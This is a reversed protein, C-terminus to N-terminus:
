RITSVLHRCVIQALEPLTKVRGLALIPVKPDGSASASSMWLVAGTQTDVLRASITVVPFTDGGVTQMAYEDVSGLVVADLGLGEKCKKLDSGSLTAGELKATKLFETTQAPDVVQFLRASLLESHFIGLVRDGARPESSFNQFPVVAVKKVAALDFQEHTYVSNSVISGCGLPGAAIGGLVAALRVIRM